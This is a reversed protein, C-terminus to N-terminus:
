GGAIPSKRSRIGAPSGLCRGAVVALVPWGMRLRATGGYFKPDLERPFVRLGAAEFTKLAFQQLHRSRGGPHQVELGLERRTGLANLDVVLDPPEMAENRIEEYYQASAVSGFEGGEMLAITMRRDAPPELTALLSLM